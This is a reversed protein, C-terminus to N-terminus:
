AISAAIIQEPFELPSELITSGSVDRFLKAMLMEESYGYGGEIQLTELLSQM